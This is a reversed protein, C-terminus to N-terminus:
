SSTEDLWARVADAHEDLLPPSSHDRRTVEDGEASFFRLPPGPLVLPGLTSHEVDVLLGQSATQDWGYVEDLTRVKGAPVGVDALRALLPEADFDAFASEVVAIVEARNEV